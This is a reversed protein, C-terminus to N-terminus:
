DLHRERERLYSVRSFDRQPLRQKRKAAAAWRKRIQRLRLLRWLERGFSLASIGTILLWLTVFTGAAPTNEPAPLLLFGVALLALASLAGGLAKM